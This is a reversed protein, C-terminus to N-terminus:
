SPFSELAKMLFAPPFISENSNLLHLVHTINQAKNILLEFKRRLSCLIEAQRWNTTKWSSVGALNLQSSFSKKKRMVTKNLNPCPTPFKSFIFEMNQKSLLFIKKNFLEWRYPKSLMTFYKLHYSYSSFQKTWPTFRITKWVLVACLEWHTPLLVCSEWFQLVM